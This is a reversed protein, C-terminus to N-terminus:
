FPVPHFDRATGSSYTGLGIRFCDGVCLSVVAHWVIAVSLGYCPGIPFATCAPLLGSYRGHWNTQETPKRPRTLVPTSM